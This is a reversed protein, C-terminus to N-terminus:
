RANWLKTAEKEIKRHRYGLRSYTSGRALCKNCRVSSTYRNEKENDMFKYNSSGEVTIELKTSGCFPCPKLKNM